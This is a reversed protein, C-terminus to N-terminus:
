EADVHIPQQSSVSDLCEDLIARTGSDPEMEEIVKLLVHKWSTNNKNGTKLGDILRNLAETDRPQTKTLDFVEDHPKFQLEKIEVTNTDTDFIIVAPRHHLDMESRTKRVLAGPNFITRGDYTDVFRYHCDGCIVLNYPRNMKLFQAPRTFDQGPYLEVASIMRHIVLVNYANQDVPTPVEEGFGCGYFHVNGEKMPKEDLLRVVGASQFVHLPSSKLSAKSHSTVDHQGWTLHLKVGKKELLRIVSALVYCSVFPNDTLDGTQIIMDCSNEAFIALAQQLKGMQTDFYEDLRGIPAKNTLHADGIIGIIM